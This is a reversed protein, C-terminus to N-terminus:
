VEILFIWLFFYVDLMAIHIVYGGVWFMKKTLSEGSIQERAELM